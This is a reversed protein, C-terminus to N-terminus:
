RGKTIPDLYELYNSFMEEESKDGWRITKSPDPNAPNNPSNDFHATLMLISGKEVLVPDAFRYVLQWDFSYHPVSLLTERKGNPRTLEYRVDKGRFHMHPTISLLLKDSDFTLCRRVEHNGDNPPILFFFNRLDMRHLVREPPGMALYLGVSTRDTQAERVNAYHISFELKTGPPIWKASGDAFVDPQRGPLYSALAGEQAGRTYPLNPADGACADDLVPAEMRIRTLKGDHELYPEISNMAQITAPGAQKESLVPNVHAHHVVRRNGPRLEAARVWIGEALNMPVVFHEYDDAGPQVRFTEGIDVVIDPKGLAWGDTFDPAKPLDKPDGEPAGEDVWAKITELQRANLRADNSFHGYRPDAFWPPMKRTVVAEKISVAWPRATKYDLLSMPAVSGPRHCSVCREYFIPAVDRTFTPGSSESAATLFTALPALVLMGIRKAAGMYRLMDAKGAVREEAAGADGAWHGFGEIEHGVPLGHPKVHHNWGSSPRMAVSIAPKVPVFAGNKTVM